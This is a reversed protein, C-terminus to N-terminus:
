FLTGQMPHHPPTGSPAPPEPAATGGSRMKDLDFQVGQTVESARPFNTVRNFEYKEGRTMEGIRAADKHYPRWDIPLTGQHVEGTEPDPPRIDHREFIPFRPAMLENNRQSWATRTSVNGPIGVEYVKSRSGLPAQDLAWRWAQAQSRTAFTNEHREKHARETLAASIQPHSAPVNPMKGKRQPLGSIKPSVIEPGTVEGTTGHFATVPKGTHTTWPILDYNRPGTDAPSKYERRVRRAERSARSLPNIM